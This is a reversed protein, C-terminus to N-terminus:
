IAVKRVMCVDGSAVWSLHDSNKLDMAKAVKVPITVRHSERDKVVPCVGSATASADHWESDQTVLAAVYASLSVGMKEAFQKVTEKTTEEIVATVTTHGKPIGM